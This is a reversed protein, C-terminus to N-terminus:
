SEFSGLFLLRSFFFLPIEYYYDSTRIIVHLMERKLV